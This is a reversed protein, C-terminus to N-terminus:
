TEAHRKRMSVDGDIQITYATSTLRDLIADAVASGGLNEHWGEPGFQSCVITTARDVRREMIELLSQQEEETAKYLLFEDLILVTTKQCKRLFDERKGNLVAMRYGDFLDPLRMYLVKFDDFCANVGLANAIYTKGSGTAGIIVVNRHREIYGNTGLRDILEKNLHRDPLYEISSLSADPYLLHANKLLRTLHNNRRNDYEHDVLMAFREDFTLQSFRDPQEMQREYADAMSSLRIERLKRLTDTKM